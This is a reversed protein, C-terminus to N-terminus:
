SVISEIAFLRTTPHHHFTIPARSIQKNKFNLRNTQQSNMESKVMEVARSAHTTLDNM